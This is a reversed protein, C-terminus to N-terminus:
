RHALKNNDGMKYTFFKFGLIVVFIVYETSYFILKSYYVINM